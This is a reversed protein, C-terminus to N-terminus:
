LYQRLKALSAPALGGQPMLTCLMGYQVKQQQGQTLYCMM